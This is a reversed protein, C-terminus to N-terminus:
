KTIYRNYSRRIDDESSEPLLTRFLGMEAEPVPLSGLGRTVTGTMHSKALASNIAQQKAARLVDTLAARYDPAPPAPVPVPEPAPAPPVGEGEIARLAEAVAAVVGDEPVPIADDQTIMQDYGM